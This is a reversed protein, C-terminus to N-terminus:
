PLGARVDLREIIGNQIDDFRSLLRRWEKSLNFEDLRIEPRSEEPLDLREEVLMSAGALMPDGNELRMSCTVGFNLAQCVKILRQRRPSVASFRLVQSMTRELRDFVPAVCRPSM